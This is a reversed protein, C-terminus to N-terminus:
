MFICTGCAQCGGCDANIERLNLDKAAEMLTRGYMDVSITEDDRIFNVKVMLKLLKTETILGKNPTLIKSTNQEYSSKIEDKPKLWLFWKIKLSSLKIVRGM